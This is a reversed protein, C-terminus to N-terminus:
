GAGRQRLVEYLCVGTAVSVNLSEVAGRMPLKALYDCYERTNHRLGKEEAGMVLALPRDLDLDYLSDEAEGDMGIVWVGADRLKRLTRALNTETLVPIHEAAGSAVKRVTANVSVSRDKPIVVADVGAADATRLCAGLNHPDQIGDLMLVLFQPSIGKALLDDINLSAAEGTTKKKLMVGQHRGEGAHRALTERSVQQMAVGATEAIKMIKQIEASPKRGQQLWLEIVDQPCSELTHRVAHIGYVLEIATKSM